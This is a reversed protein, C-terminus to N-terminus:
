IDLVLNIFFLKMNVPYRLMKKLYLKNKLKRDRKVLNILYDVILKINEKNSISM